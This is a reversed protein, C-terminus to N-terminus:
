QQIDTRRETGTIRERLAILRMRTAEDCIVGVQNTINVDTQPKGDWGFIRAAALCVDRLQATSSIDLAEKGAVQQAAKALTQMLATKTAGELGEHAAILADGPRSQLKIASIAGGNRNPLKWHYRRAWSLVTSEKVGV